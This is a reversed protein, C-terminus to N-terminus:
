AAHAHPPLTKDVAELAEAARIIRGVVESISPPTKEGIPSTAVWQSVHEIFDPVGRTDPVRYNFISGSIARIADMAPESAEILDRSLGEDTFFVAPAPRDEAAMYAIACIDYRPMPGAAAFQEGTHLGETNIFTAMKRLTRATRPM